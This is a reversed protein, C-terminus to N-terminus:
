FKNNKWYIENILVEVRSAISKFSYDKKIILDACKKTTEVFKKHMPIIMKEFRNEVENKTRSREIIDRSIRRHKRVETKVDLFIALDFLKRINKKLLVYIGDVILIDCVNIRKNKSLRKHTKYSYTPSNIANGEKLTKLHQYFLEFDISDPHDFNIGCRKSFSLESYDKYYSDLCLYEVKNKNFKKIIRNSLFSKGSGTGGCIGIVVM